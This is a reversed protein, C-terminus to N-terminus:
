DSILFRKVERFGNDTEVELLYMGKVLEGVNLQMSNETMPEQLVVRGTIEYVRVWKAKINNSITVNVKSNTPNPFIELGLYNKELLNIGSVCEGYIPEENSYCHLGTGEGIGPPCWFVFLGNDSGIGEIWNGVIAFDDSFYIIRHMLGNIEILNTSYVVVAEPPYQINTFPMQITDGVQAGFDMLLLDINLPPNGISQIYCIQNLIDEDVVRFYVKGSDDQRIYGVLYYENYNYRILRYYLKNDIITDGEIRYEYYYYDPGEATYDYEEWIVNTDLMNIYTEQAELQNSFLMLVIVFLKKM